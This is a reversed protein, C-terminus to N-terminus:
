TPSTTTFTRTIIITSYLNQSSFSTNLMKILILTTITLVLKSTSCFGCTSTSLLFSSPLNTNVLELRGMTTIIKHINHKSVHSNYYLYVTFLYISTANKTQTSSNIRHYVDYILLSVVKVLKVANSHYITSM